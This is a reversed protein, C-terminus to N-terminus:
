FTTLVFFHCVLCYGLTDSINKDCKSTKQSRTSFLRVAVHFTNTKHLSSLQTIRFDKLIEHFGAKARGKGM